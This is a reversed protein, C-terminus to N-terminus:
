QPQPRTLWTCLVSHMKAGTKGMRTVWLREKQAHVHKEGEIKFEFVSLKVNSSEKAFVMIGGGKRDEDEDSRRVEFRAYGKIDLNRGGDERRLKTELIGVLDPKQTNILQKTDLESSDNYGNTNHTVVKIVNSKFYKKKVQSRGRSESIKKKISQNFRKTRREAM